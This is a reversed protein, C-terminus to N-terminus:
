AMFNKVRNIMREKPVGENVRHTIYQMILNYLIWYNAGGNLIKDLNMETSIEKEVDLELRQTKNFGAVDVLNIDGAVVKRDIWEDWLSIQDAMRDMNGKLMEAIVLNDHNQHHEKRYNMFIDGVILGNSCVIRFAGFIVKYAFKKNYSNFVTITPNIVDDGVKYDVDTFKYTAKM